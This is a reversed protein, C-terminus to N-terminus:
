AASQGPINAGAPPTYVRTALENDIMFLGPGSNGALKLKNLVKEFMAEEEVQEDVFWQYFTRAAHDNEQRSLDMLRNINETVTREHALSFAFIEEPSKFDQPPEEIAKLSIRGGRTHLFNYMKMAHFREEKTQVHFFNAFGDLNLSHFYAAMGLYLYESYIERNIQANIADQLKQNIM